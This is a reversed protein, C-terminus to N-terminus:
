LQYILQLQMWKTSHFKAFKWCRTVSGIQACQKKDNLNNLLISPFPFESRNKWLKKAKEYNICEISIVVHFSNLLWRFLPLELELIVSIWLRCEKLCSARSGADLPCWFDQWLNLIVFRLLFCCCSFVVLMAIYM